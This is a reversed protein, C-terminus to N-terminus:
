SRSQLIKELREYSTEVGTEMPSALVQDRADQSESLITQIVTTKGDTEVLELTVVAEGPYWSPEFKETNVIREPSVIEHYVGSIGMESADSDRRWVYRYRGGVRLDVECVPMSWGDPGLLWRSILEPNTFAEFVLPRPADVVRTMRIERDSPTTLTLKGATKIM